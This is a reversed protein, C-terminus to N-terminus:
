NMMKEVESRGCESLIAQWKDADWSDRKETRRCTFVHVEGIRTACQISFYLHIGLM